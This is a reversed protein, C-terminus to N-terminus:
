RYKDKKSIHSWHEFLWNCTKCIYIWTNITVVSQKKTKGKCKPCRPNKWPM